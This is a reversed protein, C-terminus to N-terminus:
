GLDTLEELALLAAGVGGADNGLAAPVIPALSPRHQVAEVADRYAARAPALLLDGADVVGGGIVVIEPDLVNVLGAIGEGLRRGVVALVSRAVSDGERAARTVLEGTVREADQDVLSALLSRPHEQAAQVGARRIATGSAVQELCGRNGCGCVPGNPEVIIHGIEAAFGHTGRVLAGQSVIGGGIGTGVTVLLLHEVDRGAGVRFEGWAAVNADNGVLVPLGIKDAVRAALPLERWALNPSFRVTGTHDVMGAAGIGVAVVDANALGHAIGVSAAVLAEPDDAPSPVEARALIEGEPSVRYASIWSGGVDVGVAQAPISAAAHSANM